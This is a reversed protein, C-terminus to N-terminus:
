LSNCFAEGVAAFYRYAATKACTGVKAFFQPAWAKWHRELFEDLAESRATEEEEHEADEPSEAELRWATAMFELEVAMSDPSVNAGLAHSSKLGAKRYLEEVDRALGNIFFAPKSTEGDAQALFISEYLAVLNQKPVTFLMAYDSRLQQLAEEGSMAALEGELSTQAEGVAHGQIDLESMVDAVDSAFTGERLGDVLEQTPLTVFCGLLECMDARSLMTARDTM